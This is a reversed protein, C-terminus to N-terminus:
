SPGVLALAQLLLWVVLVVVALAGVVVLWAQAKRYDPPPAPSM